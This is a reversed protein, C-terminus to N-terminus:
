LRIADSLDASMLTLVTEVPAATGVPEATVTMPDAAKQDATEALAEQAAPLLSEAQQQLTVELILMPLLARVIEQSGEPTLTEAKEEPM